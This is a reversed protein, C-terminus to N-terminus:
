RWRDGQPSEFPSAGTSTTPRARSVIDVPVPGAGWADAERERITWLNTRCLTQQTDTWVGVEELFLPFMPLLDFFHEGYFRLLNGQHNPRKESYAQTGRWQETLALAGPTALRRLHYM